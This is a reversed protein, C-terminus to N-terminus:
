QPNRLRRAIASETFLKSTKPNFRINASTPLFPNHSRASQILLLPRDYSFAENPQNSNSNNAATLQNNKDYTYNTVGM